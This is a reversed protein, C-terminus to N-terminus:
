LDLVSTKLVGTNIYVYEMYHLCYFLSNCEGEGADAMKRHQINVHPIDLSSLRGRGINGRLM